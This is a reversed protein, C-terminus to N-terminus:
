SLTKAIDKILFYVRIPLMQCPSLFYRSFYNKNIAINATLQRLILRTIRHGQLKLMQRKATLKRSHYNKSFPISLLRFHWFYFLILM